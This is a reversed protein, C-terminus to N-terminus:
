QRDGKAKQLAKEAEDIALIFKQKFEQPYTLQVINKDGYIEIWEFTHEQMIQVFADFAEVLDRNIELAKELKDIVPQRASQILTNLENTRDIIDQENM